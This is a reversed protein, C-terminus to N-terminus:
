RLGVQIEIDNTAWFAPDKVARDVDELWQAAEASRNPVPVAQVRQTRDPM